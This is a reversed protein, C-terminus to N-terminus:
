SHRTKAKKLAADWFPSHLQYEKLARAYLPRMARLTETDVERALSAFLSNIQENKLMKATGVQGKFVLARQLLSIGHAKELKGLEEPKQRIIDPQVMYESTYAWPENLYDHPHLMLFHVLEHQITRHEEPLLMGKLSLFAQPPATVGLAGGKTLSEYPMFVFVSDEVRSHLSGKGFTNKLGDQLKQLTQKARADAEEYTHCRLCYGSDPYFRPPVLQWRAQSPFDGTGTSLTHIRGIAAPSFQM